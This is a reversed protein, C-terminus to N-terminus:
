AEQEKAEKLLDDFQEIIEIAESEALLNLPPWNNHALLKDFAEEEIVAERVMRKLERAKVTRESEEEDTLRFSITDPPEPKEPAPQRPGRPKGKPWGVRKAPPSEPAPQEADNPIVGREDVIPEQAARPAFLAPRASEVERGAVMLEAQRDDDRSLADHFEASLTLRKSHRRMATKKAMEDFDSVWPGADAARSRRRISEVEEHTMVEFDNTGDALVVHSYYCQAKGRNVRWNISHSVIGDRWGFEDQDCVKEARWSKVDGGRKALEILGKYDVILQCEIVGRKRNEFPILHARRGDPELGMASLDLLCRFFSPQECEALKPTRTLATIAIRIFREPSLHKPLALAIQDKIQQGLLMSKITPGAKPKEALQQESM